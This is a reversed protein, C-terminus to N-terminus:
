NNGRRKEMKEDIQCGIAVGLGALGAVVPAFIPHYVGFHLLLTAGIIAGAIGGIVAFIHKQM